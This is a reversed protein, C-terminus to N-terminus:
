FFGLSLLWDRSLWCGPEQCQEGLQQRACYLMSPCDVPASIDDGFLPEELESSSSTVRSVPCDEDVAAPKGM